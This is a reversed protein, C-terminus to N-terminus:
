SNKQKIEKLKSEVFAHLSGQRTKMKENVDNVARTLPLEAGAAAAQALAATVEKPLCGGGWPGMIHAGYKKRTKAFATQTIGYFMNQIDQLPIDKAITLHLHLLWENFFSITAANLINNMMKHAETLM